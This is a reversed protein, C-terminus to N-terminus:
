RKRRKPRPGALRHAKKTVPDRWEVVSSPLLKQPFVVLSKRTAVKASYTIFGELRPVQFLAAGLRQTPVNTWYPAAVRSLRVQVNLVSWASAPNPQYAAGPYLSGLLAQVEFLAVLHDEALYLIEFGPRAPNGGGFRTPITQTHATALANVWFQPQIARFWSGVFAGQRLFRCGSLRM